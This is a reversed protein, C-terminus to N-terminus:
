KSVVIFDSCKLLHFSVVSSKAIDLHTVEGATMISLPLSKLDAVTLSKQIAVTLMLPVNPM